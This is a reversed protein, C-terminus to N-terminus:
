FFCTPFLVENGYFSYNHWLLSMTDMILLVFTVRHNAIYLCGVNSLYPWASCCLSLDLNNDVCLRKTKFYWRLRCLQCTQDGRTRQLPTLSLTHPHWLTYSVRPLNIPGALLCKFENKRNWWWWGRGSVKSINRIVTRKQLQSPTVESLSHGRCHRLVHLGPCPWWLSDALYLWLSGEM